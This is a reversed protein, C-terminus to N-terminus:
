GSQVNKHAFKSAITSRHPTEVSLRTTNESLASGPNASRTNVVVDLREPYPLATASLRQDADTWFGVHIDRVCKGQILRENM